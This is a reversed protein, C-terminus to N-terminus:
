ESAEEMTDFKVKTQAVASYEVRDRMKLAELTKAVFSRVMDAAPDSGPLVADIIAICDARELDDGMIYGYGIQEGVKVVAQTILVEGLYFPTQQVSEAVGMM